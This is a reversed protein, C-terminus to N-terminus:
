AHAPATGHPGGAAEAGGAHLARPLLLVALLAVAAFGAGVVFTVHLAGAFADIVDAKVTAPLARVQEPDLRAGAGAVRQAAPSSSALEIALRAAFIAGFIAVGITAGISRAFTVTSTAVGIHRRPAHNQAVLIVVQMVLGVGIGIVIMDLAVLVASSRQDLGSLLLMGAVMLGAGAVPYPKYRDTKSIVRGSIANALMAGVVFPLMRLGATTASAGDVIQLYLPLFTVAGFMSMGVLLGSLGASWFPRAAFLSLPLVPDAARREQAVFATAAAIAIAGLALITPSDWAYRAGGWSAVLVVSAAAVTLLAAGVVDIPRREGRAPAPLKASIVALAAAGVPLNVYFIWRWSLQDVLLGGALPGAVSAVAFVGGIMGMYRARERPPVLEAIVAMATVILGGAGLGQLARFAALETMSAALGSLASGALFLVIAVILVRKRGVVDGLKGYLPMSVTEAVLYATVVWALDSLGGLDGAVTPLATAVITQDLAALLVGLALALLIAIPPREPATQPDSQSTVAAPM